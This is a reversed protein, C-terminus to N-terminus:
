STVLVLAAVLLAGIIGIVVGLLVLRVRQRQRANFDAMRREDLYYRHGAARRVVDAALFSDLLRGELPNVGDLPVARAEDFAQATRLRALLTQQARAAAMAASHAM